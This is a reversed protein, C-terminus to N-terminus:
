LCRHKVHKGVLRHRAEKNQVVVVAENVLEQLNAVLEPGPVLTSM